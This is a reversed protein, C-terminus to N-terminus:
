LKIRQKLVASLPIGVIGAVAMQVINFPAEVLAASLGYMYYQVIFYGAVMELGGILWAFVLKRRGQEEDLVTVAGTLFGEIGKIVLTFPIWVYWGGMFDAISSGIGGAFFGVIPGFTLAAVMVLADGVNFFGKTAPIPIQILLTAVCVLAAM